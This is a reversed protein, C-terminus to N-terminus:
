THANLINLYYMGGAGRSTWPLCLIYDPEILLGRLEGAENLEDELDSHFHGGIHM